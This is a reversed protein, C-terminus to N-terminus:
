RSCSSPSPQRPLRSPGAGDAAARGDDPELPALASLATAFSAPSAAVGIEPRYVRGLEDPDASVHVLRQDPNPVDLLTYGSTTIESLRDGIM